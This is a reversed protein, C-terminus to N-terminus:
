GMREFYDRDFESAKRKKWFSDKKPQFFEQARIILFFFPVVLLYCVAFIATTVISHIVEAVGTWGRHVAPSWHVSAALSALGNAGATLKLVGNWGPITGLVVIGCSVLSILGLTVAIGRITWSGVIKKETIM